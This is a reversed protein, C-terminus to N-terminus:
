DIRRKIRWLMYGTMMAWAAGVGFWTIAYQLHDNAINVTVPAPWAGELSSARAVVLVPEADLAAAMADLDRAFWINRPLNPEPTFGDAEDPWLLNGEVRAPGTPRAADKDTEPVFGRDVLIRRGDDLAMPAIVRFGPGVGRLSTLVHLEGPEIAGAVAVALYEDRAEEPAAPLAEPAMALRADIQALLGEKWELRRLQWFGLALVIAVGCVGFVLPAIMRRSM